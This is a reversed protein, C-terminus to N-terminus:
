FQLTSQCAEVESYESREREDSNGLDLVNQGVFFSFAKQGNGSGPFYEYFESIEGDFAQFLWYYFSLPKAGILGTHNPTRDVFSDYWDNRFKFGPSFIVPEWSSRKIPHKNWSGIRIGGPLLLFQKMLTKASM